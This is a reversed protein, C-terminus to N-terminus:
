HDEDATTLEGGVVSAYREADAISLGFLDCLRRVGGGTAIAEHLIRDERITQVPIGITKNVYVNSVPRARNVTHPNVFLYPNLCGVLTM